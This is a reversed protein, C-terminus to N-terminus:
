QLDKWKAVTLQVTQPGGSPTMTRNAIDAGSPATEVSTWDGRTFKYTIATGAPLSLTISYTGDSGKTLLYAPDAANWNNFSGSLYVPGSSPTTGPVTVKFTVSDAQPDGAYLNGNVLSWTGSNFHYNATGNNDWTSGGNNFAATLGTATGLQVTVVSYDAYASATMQVGPPTTWTTSGDLKYHIYPNGFSANKYYITVSNTDATTVLAAISAASVNGAADFAKVSYSYATGAVLGSDSYSTGTATGVKVSDRYVEYGTVAVNDTSANWTVTATSASGATAAVNTPVSPAEFDPASLPAPFDEVIQGANITSVGSYLTYNQGANNDWNGNGDNFAGRGYIRDPGTDIVGKSYGPFESPTLPIDKWIETTGVPSLTYHLNPTKFSTKYYVIIKDTSAPTVTVVNSDASSNGAKDVARVTYTYTINPDYLWAKLTRGTTAGLPVGDQYVYYSEADGSPSAEWTLGANSRAVYPAWLGTVASPGTYDGYVSVTMSSSSAQPVSVNIGTYKYYRDSNPSTLPTFSTGNGAYFYPNDVSLEELDVLRRADDYNGGMSQDIHWIAVGGHVNLSRDYGEHQRNELMFYQNPDQTPIKVINYSGTGTSNLTYSVSSDSRATVVDAFGLMYKSWADPHVPTAGLYEGAMSGWSGYSMLSHNGIGSSSGDTDYLDPLGLMHGLEHSLVGITSQHDAHREGQQTYGAGKYGVCVKKGDLVPAGTDGLSTFHAWVSQTASSGYSQEYGALITVVKLEDNQIYGDGDTDYSAMNIYPDAASLAEVVTGAGSTYAHNLHVKIIGDNATGANETAPVFNLRGQSVERYYDKVSRNTTGFFTQSWQSESYQLSIDSFEILLVLIPQTGTTANDDMGFFLGPGGAGAAGSAAADDSLSPSAEDAKLQGTGLAEEATDLVESHEEIWLDMDKKYKVAKPKSDIKVRASSPKLTSSGLDAYNWYGKKDRVIIEDDSTVAWNLREDGQLRATFTEGSPQKFVQLETRAPAAFMISGVCLMVVFLLASTAIIRYGKM